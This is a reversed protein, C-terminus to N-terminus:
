FRDRIESLEELSNFVHKEDLIVSTPGIDYDGLLLDLSSLDLNKAIPILVIEDGTEEKLEGLFRSFVEQKNKEALDESDYDYLYVVTHFDSDCKDKLKISNLWFMTRLLDYKRHQAKLNNTLQESDEYEQLTKAEEYIRNGFDINNKIAVECNLEGYNIIERQVEADLLSIESSLYLNVIESTRHNEIMIGAVLGVGFIFLTVLLAEWFVHKQNIAM